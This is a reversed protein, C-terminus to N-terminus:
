EDEKKPKLADFLLANEDLIEKLTRGGVFTLSDEKHSHASFAEFLGYHRVSLDNCLAERKIMAKGFDIMREYLEGICYAIKAKFLEGDAEMLEKFILNGIESDEEIAKKIKEKLIKEFNIVNNKKPPEM